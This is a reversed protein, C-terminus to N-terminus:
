NEHEWIYQRKMAKSWKEVLNPDKKPQSRPNKKKRKFINARQSVLQLYKKWM